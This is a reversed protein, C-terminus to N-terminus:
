LTANTIRNRDLAQASTVEGSVVYAQLPQQQLQALQNMGNNGVVNFSPSVVGSGTAGGGGGTSGGGGVNGGSPASGGGLAQLAKATAAINAAIGIGTSINNMAIVPAASLGSTAIAQPTALAGANALKNAIIMKAIGVASEGLVAIKQVAKNKEGLQALLAFGQSAVDLAQSQLARKQEAVAKLRDIEIAKYKADIADMETAKATAITKEAEANGKAAEELAFYKNRVADIEKQEATLTNQYNQEDLAEIQADFDQKAKVEFAKAKAKADAMKQEEIARYRDKIELIDKQYQETIATTDQNAKDALATADDFKNALDQLEKEQADTIRAQRDQEQADYYAKLNENYLANAAAIKDLKDQNSEVEQKNIEQINLVTGASENKLETLKDQAEKIKADYESTDSFALLGLGYNKQFDEFNKYYDKLSDKIKDSSLKIEGFGLQKSVSNIKNILFDLPKSIFDIAGLAFKLLMKNTTMLFSFREENAAKQAKRTEILLDIEKQANKISQKEIAIRGQLIEKDTKGQLKLVNNQNDYNKLLRSSSEVLSHAKSNAKEQEKSVGTVAAKIDDWYAVVAGLALVLLGIGTAAIGARIGSLATKGSLGVTKWIPGLASTSKGILSSESSLNKFTDKIVGGFQKFSDRAEGLGQLGQSLAMASQVKLLTAQVQEGEVGILGLAGEFAQFGDLVGGISKSLANFKADPNFSKVLDAADGIRDKLEGARKAAEIAQASTAGYADSLKQVEMVAEKLQAKLSKSNDKIELEVTRKEAM